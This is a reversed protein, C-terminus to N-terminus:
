VESIAREREKEKAEEKEESAASGKTGGAHAWDNEFITRMKRAVTSDRTIVGIERRGDLELKRLSQSGMFASTGDRIIARVHLRMDSLRRAEIGSGGKGLKGILKIEVGAKAREALLRLM